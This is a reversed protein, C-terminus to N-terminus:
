VCRVDTRSKCNHVLPRITFTGLFMQGTLFECVVNKCTEIANLGMARIRTLRDAWLSPHVRSYHICGSYLLYEHGDRVFRNNEITFSRQSVALASIALVVVPVLM